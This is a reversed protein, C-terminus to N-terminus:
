GNKCGRRKEKFDDCVPCYHTDSELHLREGCTPCTCGYSCHPAYSVGSWQKSYTPDDKSKTCDHRSHIM